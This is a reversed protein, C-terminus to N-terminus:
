EPKVINQYDQLWDRLFREHQELASSINYAASRMEEAAARMTNAAIRVDEAGILHITEM